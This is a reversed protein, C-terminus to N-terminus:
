VESEKGLRVLKSWRQDSTGSSCQCPCQNLDHGCSSCLGACDPRCLPKTPMALLTYQGMVESLDLENNEDITTSGDAKGASALDSPIDVRRFFEEDLGFGVTCDIPNLCRCCTETVNAIMAGKVLISYSTRTLSVNGKISAIGEKGVSEDIQCRRSSGVPEKLLEAVNIRM